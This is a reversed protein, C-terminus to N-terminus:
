FHWTRTDSKADYSVRLGNETEVVKNKHQLSEVKQSDQFYTRALHSRKSDRYIKGSPKVTIYKM